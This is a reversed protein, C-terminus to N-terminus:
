AMVANYAGKKKTLFFKDLNRDFKIKLVRDYKVSVILRMVWVSINSIEMKKKDSKLFDNIFKISKAMERNCNALVAPGLESDVLYASSKMFSSTEEIREKDDCLVAIIYDIACQKYIANVLRYIGAENLEMKFARENHLFKKGISKMFNEVAEKAEDTLTTRCWGYKANNEVTLGHAEAAKKFKKNHYTGARSTDKVGNELNYLHVMEHLMTGAVDEYPRSLYEACINIEYYGETEHGTEKWAKWSTCWGYAGKTTDPSITIVPKSLENEFYRGNFMGFLEELQQITSILSTNAM